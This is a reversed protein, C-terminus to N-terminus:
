HKYWAESDPSGNDLMSDSVSESEEPELNWGPAMHMNTSSDAALSMNNVPNHSSLTVPKERKGKPKRNIMSVEELKLILCLILLFEADPHM